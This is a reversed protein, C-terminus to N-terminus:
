RTMLATLKQAQGETMCRPASWTEATGNLAEEATVFKAEGYEREFSRRTEESRDCVYVVREGRAQVAEVSAADTGQRQANQAEGANAAGALLLAVATSIAFFKM